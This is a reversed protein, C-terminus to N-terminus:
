FLTDFFTVFGFLKRMKCLQSEVPRAGAPIQKLPVGAFCNTKTDDILDPSRKHASITGLGLYHISFTPGLISISLHSGTVKKM